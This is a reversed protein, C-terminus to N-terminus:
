GKLSGVLIGKAFYKQLFPYVLLIPITSLMVTAAKLTEPLVMEDINMGGLDQLIQVQRVMNRMIMQLVHKEGKSMYIMSDFWANWHGVMSWLVVTAIAPKSVPIILRILITIDRAGDLKASEELSEPITM